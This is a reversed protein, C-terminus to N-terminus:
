HFKTFVYDDIPFDPYADLIPTCEPPQIGNIRRLNQIMDDVMSKLNYAPRWDWDKRAQEDKLSAPLDKAIAQRFDPSYTIKFDPIHKRISAVLDCPSFSMGAFNYSTRISIKEKATDMLEITARVADPMYMMPLCTDEELFCTHRRKEFAQHLLQAAYDTIEGGPVMSYSILGPYRLSRVDVGYKEFYYNCWHEGARKSIGYITNPEFYTTQPCNYRPSGPGFVAISSPWFVKDLHEDKAVELVSLLSQMNTKWFSNM